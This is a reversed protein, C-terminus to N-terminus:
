SCGLKPVCGVVQGLPILDQNIRVVKHHTRMKLFEENKQALPDNYKFMTGYIIKNGRYKVPYSLICPM